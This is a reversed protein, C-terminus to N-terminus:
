ILKGKHRLSLENVIEPITLGQKAMYVLIFYLLDAVEWVMDNKDQAQTVEFAEEILKKHLKEMNQTIKVTYSKENGVKIRDKLFNLLYEMDFEKDAFCSYRGTHCAVGNQEVTYILTDADCDYRVSDVDQTYGSTLGKKWLENRSRSFYTALGSRLTEMVAEKNSYALMLVKGTKDQAITPIMGKSFDLTTLLAENLDIKGSYVSMGLVQDFGLRNIKQIEEYSAIGGAVVVRNKTLGKLRKIFELDTGKNLGEVDINTVLFASCYNELEKFKDKLKGEITKKWGEVAIKGKKVDLAVILRHMPLQELFEKTASTGIILNRAGARLYEYAIEKTRIGGGVNSPLRKCLEKILEKNDGNGLAADLDIINTEPFLKFKEILKNLDKEEFIKDKGQKLQVAKGDMLDISPIIM